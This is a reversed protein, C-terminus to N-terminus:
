MHLRKITIKAVSNNWDYLTPSLIENNADDMEGLDHFGNGIHVFGEGMETSYGEGGCRPGPINMCNQDNVETGSDYAPLMKTVTRYHPLRLHDVAVFSDNTPIMMAAFSLYGHGPQGSLTISTSEGPGLLGPITQIDYSSDEFMMTLPATDGGEALIELEMSAPEGLIFLHVNRPHTVVMQPTFFQGPTVNTITVEYNAAFSTTATATLILGALAHKLM